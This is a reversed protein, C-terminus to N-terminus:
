YIHSIDLSVSKLSNSWSPMSLRTWISMLILFYILHSKPDISGISLLFGLIVESIHIDNDLGLIQSVLSMVLQVEKKFINVNYPIFLGELLQGDKLISSLFQCRVETRCNKYMEILVQENLSECSSPFNDPLSLIGRVTKVDVKCLIKSTTHSM